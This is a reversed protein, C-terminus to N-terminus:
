IFNYDKPFSRTKLSDKFQELFNNEEINSDFVYTPILIDKSVKSIILIYYESVFISKIKEFPISILEYKSNINILNDDTKLM